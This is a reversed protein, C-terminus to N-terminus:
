AAASLYERLRSKQIPIVTTGDVGAIWESKRKGVFVGYMSLKFEYINKSTNYQITFDPDIDLRVVYGSLKMEVKLLDIYENKLRPISADDYISGDLCFMKLPKHHLKQM